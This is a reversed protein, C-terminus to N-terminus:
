QCGKAAMTAMWAADVRDTIAAGLFFTTVIFTLLIALIIKM